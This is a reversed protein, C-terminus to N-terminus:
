IILFIKTRLILVQLCKNKLVYDYFQKSPTNHPFRIELIDESKKIKKYIKNAEFLTDSPVFSPIKRISSIGTNKLFNKCRQQNYNSILGLEDGKYSETAARLLQM